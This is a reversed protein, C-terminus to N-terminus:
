WEKSGRYKWESGTWEFFDKGKDGYVTADDGEIELSMDKTLNKGFQEKFKLEKGYQTM